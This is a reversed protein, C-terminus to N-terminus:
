SSMKQFDLRLVWLCLLENELNYNLSFFDYGASARTKRAPLPYTEYFEKDDSVDKQFQVFSIKEFGRM